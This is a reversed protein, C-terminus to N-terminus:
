QKSKVGTWINLNFCLWIYVLIGLLILKTGWVYTAEKCTILLCTNSVAFCIKSLDDVSLHNSSHFILSFWILTWSSCLVPFYYIAGPDSGSSTLFAGLCYFRFPFRSVCAIIKTEYLRKMLPIAMALSSEKFFYDLFTSGHFLSIHAHARIEMFVEFTDPYPNLFGRQLLLCTSM